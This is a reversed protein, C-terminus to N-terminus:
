GRKKTERILDAVTDPLTRTAAWEQISMPLRGGVDVCNRYAIETVGGKPTFLWEGWSIPPEVAGAEIAQARAVVAPYHAAASIRNWRFRRADGLNAAHGEMVWYRDYVMTWGPIDLYQWYQVGGDPLRALTESVLLDASSWGKSSPIDRAVALLKDPSLAVTAVGELCPLGDITKNNVIVDGQDSKRVAIQKWDARSELIDFRPEAALALGFLAIWM